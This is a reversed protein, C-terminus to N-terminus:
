VGAGNGVGVSNGDDNGNDNDVDVKDNDGAVILVDSTADPCTSPAVANLNM